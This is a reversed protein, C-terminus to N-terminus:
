WAARACGTTQRNETASESCFVPLPTPVLLWCLTSYTTLTRDVIKFQPPPLSPPPPVTYLITYPTQPCVTYHNHKISYDSEWFVLEWLAQSLM